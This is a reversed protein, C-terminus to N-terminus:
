GPRRMANWISLSCWLCATRHNLFRQNAHPSLLRAQARPPALQHPGVAQKCGCIPRGFGLLTKRLCDACSQRYFEDFKGCDPPPPTTAPAPPHPLHPALERVPAIVAVGDYEIVSEYHNTRANVFDELKVGVTCEGKLTPGLNVKM